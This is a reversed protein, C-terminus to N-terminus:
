GQWALGLRCNKQEESRFLDALLVVLAAVIIVFQPALAILNLSPIEINM